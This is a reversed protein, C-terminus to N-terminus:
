FRILFRTWGTPAPGASRVMRRLRWSLLVISIGTAILTGAMMAVVIRPHLYIVLGLVILLFGSFM